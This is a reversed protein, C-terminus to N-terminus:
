KISYLFSRNQSNSKVNYFVPYNHEMKDVVYSVQNFPPMSIENIGEDTNPHSQFNSIVIEGNLVEFNALYIYSKEM